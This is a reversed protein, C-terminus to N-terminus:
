EQARVPAGVMSWACYFVNLKASDNRAVPDDAFASSGASDLFRTKRRGFLPNRSQTGDEASRLISSRESHCSRPPKDGYQALNAIM